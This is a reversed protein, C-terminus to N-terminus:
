LSYGDMQIVLRSLNNKFSDKVATSITGIKVYAYLTRTVSISSFTYGKEILKKLPFLFSFYQGTNRFSSGMKIATNSLNIQKIYTM